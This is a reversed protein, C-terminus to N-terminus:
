TTGVMSVCTRMGLIQGLNTPVGIQLAPMKGAYTRGSSTLPRDAESDGVSRPCARMGMKAQSGSAGTSHDILPEGRIILTSLTSEAIRLLRPPRRKGPKTVIRM